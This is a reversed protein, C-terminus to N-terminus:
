RRRARARARTLARRAACVQLWEELVNEDSRTIMLGIVPVASPASGSGAVGGDGGGSAAPEAAWGCAEATWGPATEAAAAGAAGAAAAADRAAHAALRTALLAAAPGHAAEFAEAATLPEAASGPQADTPPCVRVAPGSRALEGAARAARAQAVGSSRPALTARVHEAGIGDRNSDAIAGALASFAQPTRGVPALAV